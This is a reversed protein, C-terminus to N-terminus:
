FNLNNLKNKIDELEMSLSDLKDVKHKEEIKVKSKEVKEVIREHEDKVNFPMLSQFHKIAKNTIEIEEKLSGMVMLKRERIERLNDTRRILEINEIALNLLDRRKSNPETIFNYLANNM